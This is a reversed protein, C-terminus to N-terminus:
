RRDYWVQPILEDRPIYLSDVIKNGTIGTTDVNTVILRQRGASDGAGVAGGVIGAGLNLRHTTASGSNCQGYPMCFMTMFSEGKVGAGCDGSLGPKSGDFTTVFMDGGIVIPTAMVKESQIKNSKFKFYWGQTTALPALTETKRFRTSDNLSILKNISSATVQEVNEPQLVVDKTKLQSNAMTYITPNTGETKLLQRNAVDKDYINFIADYDYSTQTVTYEALPKSRNGSGFSVAAFIEGGLTYTSFAPMEYFRPSYAGNNLNLIRTPTRTFMTKPADATNNIDIRWAQGGLDGFYLHDILGDADRDLSRIQSAVSYKMDAAYSSAPGTTPAYTPTTTNNTANAGAWWLLEGTLADFMYVGAGIKNSQAYDDYEYGRYKDTAKHNANGTNTGEADYGGGVFMVLRKQGNWNVSGISPKSWSQGMCGLPNASSCAGSPQIKFKLSPNNIDALDLAYYSKGGMRLGGYVLQKGRQTRQVTQQNQTFSYSKGEGVTLTDANNRDTVYETYATWPGDIGYFMKQIGGSTVEPRNLAEAQSEIMENPVFAFKEQGTVVDVVHLVGQTTGFLIYDERNESGVEKTTYDYTVQGKNTLLVPSSHMVAGVQRLEPQALLQTKTLTNQPTNGTSLYQTPDFRYGLLNMVYGVKPDLKRTAHDLDDISVQRLGNIERTSSTYDRTTLLKRKATNNTLHRLNLKTKMGGVLAESREVDTPTTSLAPSWLDYNDLIRGQNNTILSNGKDRLMGNIDVNYKKLNGAWLQYTKDPTPEFQPYYAKNQLVTPNLYDVPITPTGTTVAPIDAGLDNIFNNVSNVVDQSSSGSYWGGEGIIGWYAARKEDSNITGLADINQQQTKARDYSNINGFAAGFGVVATKFKLGVPNKTPDLLALSAKNVCDFTGNSCSFSTGSGGLANQLLPLSGTDQTPVGDTLVYIGQGSCKREGEEQILSSPKSYATKANNKTSSDSYNFGSNSVTAALYTGTYDYCTGNRTTQGGGSGTVFTCVGSTLEEWDTPITDTTSSWTDCSTFSSNWKTCKQKTTSTGSTYQRYFPMNEVSRTTNTNTGMMYAVTEAFSRATPTNSAARLGNIANILLQRQTTGNVNEDLRRAPVKVAGVDAYSNSTTYGLTSLGIIKDDSIRTIGNTTNGQLLDVMAEKVRTMRTKGTGDYSNNNSMSGSVDLMFMLTIDGSKAEQYIEIDSAFSATSACTLATMAASLSMALVNKLPHTKKESKYPTTMIKM